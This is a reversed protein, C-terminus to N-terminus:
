VRGRMPLQSRYKKHHADMREARAGRCIVCKYTSQEKSLTSYLADSINDCATHIWRDCDDCCVMPQDTEDNHYVLLCVPCFHGKQFLRSCFSCLTTVYKPESGDRPITFQHTCPNGRRFDKEHKQCSSCSSCSKCMWQGTPIDQLGVCFTHYGRDCDDCFMMKEEDGPDSCLTCVKCDMCQWSYSGLIRVTQVSLELCSPHGINPCTSCSILAEAEGKRNEEHGHLCLSCLTDHKLSRQKAQTHSRQHSRSSAPQNTAPTAAASSSSALGTSSLPVASNERSLARSSAAMPPPLSAQSSSSSSAGAGAAADGRTPNGPPLVSEVPTPPPVVTMTKLPMCRLQEPTYRPCYDQYQGPLLAVPYDGVPPQRRGRRCLRKREPYHILQTQTDYYASRELRRQQGIEANYQAAKRIARQALSRKSDVIKKIFEPGSPQKPGVGCVDLAKGHLASMYESYRSPYHKELHCLVNELPISIRTTVRLGLKKLFLVEDTEMRRPEMDPAPESLNADRLFRRLEQFPVYTSCTDGSLPWQYELCSGMM